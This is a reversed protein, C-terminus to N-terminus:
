NKDRFWRKLGFVLGISEYDISRNLSEMISLIISWRLLQNGGLLIDECPQELRM